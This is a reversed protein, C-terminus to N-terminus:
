QVIEFETKFPIPGAMYISKGFISMVFWLPMKVKLGTKLEPHVNLLDGKKMPPSEWYDTLIKLGIETLIIEVQDNVNM